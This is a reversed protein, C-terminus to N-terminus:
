IWVAVTATLIIIIIKRISAFFCYYPLDDTSVLNCCCYLFILFCHKPGFSDRDQVTYFALSTFIKLVKWSISAKRNSCNKEDVVQGNKRSCEAIMKQFLWLSKRVRFYSFFFFFLSTNNNRQYKISISSVLPNINKVANNCSGFNPVWFRWQSQLLLSM